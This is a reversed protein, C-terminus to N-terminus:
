IYIYIDIASSKHSDILTQISQFKLAETRFITPLSTQNPNININLDVLIMRHHFKYILLNQNPTGPDNCIISNGNGILPMFVEKLKSILDNAVPILQSSNYYSQIKLIDGVLAISIPLAYSLTPYKSSCLLKTADKLSDLFNIMQEVKEGEFRKIKYKITDPWECVLDCANKLEHARKLM